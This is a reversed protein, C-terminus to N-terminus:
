RRFDVMVVANRTAQPYYYAIGNITKEPTLSLYSYGSPFVRKDNLVNNIQVRLTTDRSLRIAASATFITKLRSGTQQRNVPLLIAAHRSGVLRQKALRTRIAWSIGVGFCRPIDLDLAPDSRNFRPGNM